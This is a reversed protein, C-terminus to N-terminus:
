RIYFASSDVIEHIVCKQKTKSKCDKLANKKAVEMKGDFRAWPIGDEDRAIALYGNWFSFAFECKVYDANQCNLMAANEASKQDDKMRSYSYTPKNQKDFAWVLTGYSSLWRGKSGGGGGGSYTSGGGSSMPACGVWGGNGGGIPYQGAPCNGESFANAGFFISILFGFKIYNKM